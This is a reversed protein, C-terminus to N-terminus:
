LGGTVELTAGTVYSASRSALFLVAAAVESPEAFRKMPVSARHAERAEPSLDEILDTAVFGPSLCNVTIGRTAVEKALSRALGVQGAKSAAYNGQGEFGVRGAPSTVLVIRGYRRRMMNQVAFKSMHYCGGLNTELVTQWDEPSMMALVRDRRIGANNVLVQVGDPAREELTEWFRAVAGHDGVDFAHVSLREAHAGARDRLAAAAAENSRHTAHVRAGAELFALATAAGLGRTGGTVVVTQGTFDASM